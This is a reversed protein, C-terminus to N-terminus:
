ENGALYKRAFSLKEILDFDEIGFGFCNLDSFIRNLTKIKWKDLSHCECYYLFTEVRNKDTIRSNHILEYCKFFYDFSYRMYNKFRDTSFLHLSELEHQYRIILKYKNILSFNDENLFCIICDQCNSCNYERKNLRRVLYNAFNLSNLNYKRLLSYDIEMQKILYKQDILRQWNKNVLRYNVLDNVTVFDFIFYVIDLPLYGFSM